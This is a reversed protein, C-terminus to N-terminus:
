FKHQQKHYKETNFRQDDQPDGEKELNIVNGDVVVDFDESFIRKSKVYNKSKRFNNKNLGQNYRNRQKKPIKYSKEKDWNGQWPGGHDRALILNDNITKSKVYESFTETDWNEVYGSGNENCEIQRRSAILILPFNSKNAINISADVVNKTMPGIGLLTCRKKKIESNLRNFLNM